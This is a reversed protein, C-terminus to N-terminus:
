RKPITDATEVNSRPNRAWIRKQCHTPEQSGRRDSRVHVVYRWGSDCSVTAIADAQLKSTPDSTETAWESSEAADASRGCFERGDGRSCSGSIHHKTEYDYRWDSSRKM